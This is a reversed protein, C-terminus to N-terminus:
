LNVIDSFINYKPNFGLKRLYSIELCSRSNQLIEHFYPPSISTIKSTSQFIEKAKTIVDLFKTEIGSGVNIILNYDANNLILSIARSVDRVHMFDRTVNGGNYLEVTENKKIQSILYQLANKKASIGDDGVGYVNCLRLIRYNLHYTECYTIIFKEAALKSVSYFGRPDCCDEVSFPIVGNKGYVFWTSLYNITFIGFKKRLIELDQILKILNTEIDLTPNSYINYNDVTGICYLVDPYKPNPNIRGVCDKTGKYYETFDRGIFGTSGFISINKLM